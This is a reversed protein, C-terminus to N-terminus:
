ITMRQLSTTFTYIEVNTASKLAVDIWSIEQFEGYVHDDPVISYDVHYTM